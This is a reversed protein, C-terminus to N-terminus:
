PSAVKTTPRPHDDLALTQQDSMENEIALALRDRARRVRSSIAETTADLVLGIEAHTLGEWAVLRLLEQDDDSLSALADLAPSSVTESPDQGLSAVSAPQHELKSVLRLHRASSRRANRLTNHAVRYLWPLKNDLGAVEDWRRWAVLFVEGVVDDPNVDGGSRRRVYADIPGYTSDFCARFAAGASQTAAGNPTPRKRAM